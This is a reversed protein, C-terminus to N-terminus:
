GSARAAVGGFDALRREVRADGAVATADGPVGGANPQLRVIGAVSAMQIYSTATFGADTLSMRFREFLVLPVVAYAVGGLIVNVRDYKDKLYGSFQSM